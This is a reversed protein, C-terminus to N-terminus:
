LLFFQYLYLERHILASNDGNDCSCIPSNCTELGIGATILSRFSFFICIKPVLNFLYCQTYQKCLHCHLVYLRLGVIMLLPELSYQIRQEMQFEGLVLQTKRQGMGWGEQWMKNIDVHCTQILRSLFLSIFWSAGTYTLLRKTPPLVFCCCYFLQPKFLAYNGKRKQLLPM